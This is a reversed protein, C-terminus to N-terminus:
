RRGHSELFKGGLSQHAPYRLSQLRQSTSGLDTDGIAMTEIVTDAVSNFGISISLVLRRITNECIELRDCYLDNDSM